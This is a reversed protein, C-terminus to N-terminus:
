RRDLIEIADPRIHKALVEQEVVERLIEGENIAYKLHRFFFDTQKPDPHEKHIDLKKGRITDVWGRPIVGLIPKKKKPAYEMKMGSRWPQTARITNHLLKTNEDLVDYRNWEDNLPGISSSESMLGIQDRYDMQHNLLRDVINDISWHKLKQNDLLMVSTAWQNIKHKKMLIAHGNMDMKFLDWIDSYASFVDPDIVISRGKYKMLEPPMFRTLTFSQLDNAEYLVKYGDKIINRGYIRKLADVDESLIIEVSFLNNHNSYREITYKGVLAGLYQKKNTHIFVKCEM